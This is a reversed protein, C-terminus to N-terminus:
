CMWVLATVTEKKLPRNSALAYFAPVNDFAVYSRNVWAGFVQEKKRVKMDRGPGRLVIIVDEDAKKTGYVGMDEGDFGTTVSIRDKDLEVGDQAFAYFPLCLVFFALLFRMM